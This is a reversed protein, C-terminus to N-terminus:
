SLKGGDNKESHLPYSLVFDNGPMLHFGRFNVGNSFKERCTEFRKDCGARVEFADGPAPPFGPPLWLSLAGKGQAKVHGSAGANAGSTWDLRGHVFWDDAFADLGSVAFRQEDLAEIIAGAGKFAPDDLDVGCRADGVAADCLRGYVRGATEDLAASLGRIEATFAAGDRRVEGIVGRKLLVRQEPAAWNVRWIEVAAGDFRGSALEAASLRESSLAGQVQSNDVSLDASSQLAAGDGATDPEYIEGGVVLARDHDTFRFAAGDRRAIRWCTCLTTAGTDLHSQFEPSLARM